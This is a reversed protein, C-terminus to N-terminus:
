LTTQEVADANTDVSRLNSVESAVTDLQQNLTNNHQELRSQVTSFRQVLGEAESIVLQRVPVSTPDDAAAHLSGFFNQIGPALGTTVDALLSDIQEINNSFTKLEQFVSSDLRLQSVAFEDVIRRVGEVEVGSGQYGAGTFQPTNPAQEVSQRTYGPSDANSINHGVTRLAAQNALLGSVGINLLSM